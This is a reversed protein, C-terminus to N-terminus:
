QTLCTRPDQCESLVSCSFPWISFYFHLTVIQQYLRAPPFVFTLTFVSFHSSTKQGGIFSPDRSLFFVPLDLELLTPVRLCSPKWPVPHLETMPYMALDDRLHKLVCFKDQINQLSQTMDKLIAAMRVPLSPDFPESRAWRDRRVNLQRTM